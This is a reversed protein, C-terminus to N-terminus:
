DIRLLGNASFLFGMVAGSRFAVIFAKGVGKRAELTTRANAYTAIKMRLFGSVVYTVAGLLFSITSFGATALAPLSSINNLSTASPLLHKGCNQLWSSIGFLSQKHYTSPTTSESVHKGNVLIFLIKMLLASNIQHPRIEQGCRPLLDSNKTMFEWVCKGPYEDFSFEEQEEVQKENGQYKEM